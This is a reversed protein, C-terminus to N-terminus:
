ILKLFDDLNIINVIPFAYSNLINFHRDSTLIFDSNSSIAADVFKNDDIDEKILYWYYFVEIKLTNNSKLILEIINESIEFNMKQTFIESYESLIENSIVLDFKGNRFAEFIPRYKSTKPLIPLFCNTDIICRM